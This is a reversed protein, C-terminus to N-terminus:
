RAMPRYVATELVIANTATDRLALAYVSSSERRIELRWPGQEREGLRRDLDERTWLSAASLFADAAAYERERAAALAVSRLTASTLVLYSGGVVALIAMAAMVEVLMMGRRAHM